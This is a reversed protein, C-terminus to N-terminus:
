QKQALIGDIVVVLNQFIERLETKCVALFLAIIFHHFRLASSSTLSYTFNSRPRNRINVEQQKRREIIFMWRGENWSALRM